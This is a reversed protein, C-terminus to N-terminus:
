ENMQERIQPINRSYGRESDPVRGTEPSTVILLVLNRSKHLKCTTAPASPFLTLVSLCIHIDPSPAVSFLLILAISLTQQNPTHLPSIIKWAMDSFTVSLLARSFSVLSHTTNSFSSVWPLVGDAFLPLLPDPPKLFPLSILPGPLRHALVSRTPTVRLPQM